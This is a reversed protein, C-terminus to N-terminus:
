SVCSFSCRWINSFESSACFRMSPRSVGCCRSCTCRDARYDAVGSYRPMACFGHRKMASSNARGGKALLLHRCSMARGEDHGGRPGANDGALAVPLHALAMNAALTSPAFRAVSACFGPKEVRSAANITAALFGIGLEQYLPLLEAEPGRYLVSYENQIVDVALEKHARRVTQLGPESLGYHLVERQKFM